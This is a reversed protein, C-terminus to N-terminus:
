KKNKNLSKVKVKFGYSILKGDRMVQANSKKEKVRYKFIKKDGSRRQIKVNHSRRQVKKSRSRICNTYVKAAAGSPTSSHLITDCKPTLVSYYNKDSSM